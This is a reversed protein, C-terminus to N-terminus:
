QNSQAPYSKGCYRVETLHKAQERNLRAVCVRALFGYWGLASYDFCVHLDHGAKPGRKRMLSQAVDLRASAGVCLGNRAYVQFVIDSPKFAVRRKGIEFTHEYLPISQWYTGNVDASQTTGDTKTMLRDGRDVFALIKLRAVDGAKVNQM